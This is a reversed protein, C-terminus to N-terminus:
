QEHFNILTKISEPMGLILVVLGFIVVFSGVCVHHLKLRDYRLKLHLVIPFIFCFPSHFISGLFSVIALFSPVLIAVLVSSVVVAVRVVADTVFDPIKDNQIRATASTHVTQMVPYVILVYSLVCNLAFFSGVTIHAPGLPLSNLIVADTNAGFSLFAFVAFSLKMLTSVVFALTLAKGFKTKDTM